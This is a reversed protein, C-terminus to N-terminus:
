VNCIWAMSSIEKSQWLEWNKDGQRLHLLGHPM